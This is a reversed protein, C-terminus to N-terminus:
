YKNIVLLIIIVLTINTLGVVIVFNTIKSKLIKNERKDTAYNSRLRDGSIFVGNLIGAIGLCVLGIIGCIKIILMWNNFINGFIISIFIIIFSLIISIKM